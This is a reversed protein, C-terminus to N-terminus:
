KLRKTTEEPVQNLIESSLRNDSREKLDQITGTNVCFSFYMSFYDERLSATPISSVPKTAAIWLVPRENQRRYIM